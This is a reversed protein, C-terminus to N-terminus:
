TKRKSGHTSVVNWSARDGYLAEVLARDRTCQLDLLPTSVVHAVRYAWYDVIFRKSILAFDHGDGHGPGILAHKNLKSWYGVVEGSFHKAIRSAADSCRLCDGGGRFTWRGEEEDYQEESCLRQVFMKVQGVMAQADTTKM